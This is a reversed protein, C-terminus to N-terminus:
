LFTNEEKKKDYNKKEHKIDENARPKTKKAEEKDDAAFSWKQM